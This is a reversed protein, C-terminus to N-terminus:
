NPQKDSVSHQDNMLHMEMLDEMFEYYTQGGNQSKNFSFRWPNNSQQDDSSDNEKNEENVEESISQKDSVSHQDSMLYMKMLDEMSESYTQGSNQSETSSVEWSSSSQQDDVKEKDSILQKDNLSSHTSSLDTQLTSPKINHIKHASLRQKIRDM